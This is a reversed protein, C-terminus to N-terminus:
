RRRVDVSHIKGSSFDVSCSFSFWTNGFGRQGNATGTIWHHRGPNDVPMTREFRVYRYGRQNLRDTVSDQCMRIARAMPSGGGPGPYPGHGPGHGPPPLAPGPAWGGDRSRWQLDFTYGGRGGQPDTIQVVARGSTSRPDQILRVTGRGNIRVLRFDVPNSPPPTNCQFRRWAAPQGATNTLFGLEGSIEVEAAHDVTVEITCRGNGGGGTIIARRSVPNAHVAPILGALIATFLLPHKKM